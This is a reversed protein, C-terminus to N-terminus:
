QPGAHDRRRAEGYTIVVLGATGAIISVVSSLTMFNVAIRAASCGLGLMLLLAARIATFKM